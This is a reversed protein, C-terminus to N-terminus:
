RPNRSQPKKPTPRVGRVQTSDKSSSSVRKLIEKVGAADGAPVQETLEPDSTTKVATKTEVRRIISVFLEVEEGVLGLDDEAYAKIKSRPITGYSVSAMTAIVPRETALDHWASLYFRDVEDIEPREYYYSPIDKDGRIFRRDM